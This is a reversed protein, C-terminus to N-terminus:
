IKELVSVCKKLRDLTLEKNQMEKELSELQKRFNSFLMESMKERKASKEMTSLFEDRAKNFINKLNSMFASVEDMFRDVDYDGEITGSLSSSFTNSGFDLNPLEMNNILRRLATKLMSTDILEDDEVAERLSRTVRTQVTQKWEIKFKEVVKILTDQLEFVLDNLANKIVGTRLTRVERSHHKKFLWLFGGRTTWTETKSGEAAGFEGKAINFLANSEKSVTERVTSKLEDVCDEYTGDIAEVGKSILVEAKKKQEEVAAMDTNKIKDSKDKVAKLMETAFNDVNKIQGDIYDAQKQAIIKDKEKRALEIKDSVNKIGSLLELNAKASTESDFYDRYYENFLGWVHNMDGDWSNRDNYKLRMAHCIASTIMVRDKGGKILQDFQGAVEPNNNKLNNLTNVAQSSLDDCIKQVAKNLNKGAEEM